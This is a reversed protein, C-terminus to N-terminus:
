FYLKVVIALVCALIILEVVSVEPRLYKTRIHFWLTLKSYWDPKYHMVIVFVLILVLLINLILM